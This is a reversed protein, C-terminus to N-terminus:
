KILARLMPGFTPDISVTIANIAQSFGAAVVTIGQPDDGHRKMADGAAHLIAASVDIVAQATAQEDLTM